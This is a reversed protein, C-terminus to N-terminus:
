TILFSLIKGWIIDFVALIVAFIGVVICVIVTMRRTDIFGPWSVKRFEGISHLFYEHRGNDRGLLVASIIGILVSTVTSVVPYLEFYKESWGTEIGLTHM